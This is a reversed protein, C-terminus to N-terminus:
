ANWYSWLEKARKIDRQQHRKTGGGLMVVSDGDEAYYIRYGPNLEIRLESVGDGVSKRDGFNGLKVRDIRNIIIGHIKQGALSDVWDLYPCNENADVAPAIQRPRVEM